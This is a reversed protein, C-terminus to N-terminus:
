SCGTMQHISFSDHRSSLGQSCGPAAEVPVHRNVALALRHHLPGYLPIQLRNALSSIFSMNMWRAGTTDEHFATTGLSRGQSPNISDDHFGPSHHPVNMQRWVWEM